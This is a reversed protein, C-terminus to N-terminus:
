FETYTCCFPSMELGQPAIAIPPAAAKMGGAAKACPLLAESHVTHLTSPLVCTDPLVAM